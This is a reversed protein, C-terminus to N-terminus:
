KMLLLKRAQTFNETSLQYFYIGSALGEASWEYKYNGANLEESVLTTVKEGLASFVELTVLTQEPISFQITTSPNFPNPYNQHLVFQGPIGGLENLGQTGITDTFVWTQNTVVVGSSERPDVIGGAVVLHVIELARTNMYGVGSHFAMTRNPLPDEQEYLNISVHYSYVNDIPTFGTSTSGGGFYIEDDTFREGYHAYLSLPYNSRATWIIQARNTSNIEGNYTTNWLETTSKLGGTLYFERGIRVTGFSAAAEPLETADRFDEDNMNYMMVRKLFLDGRETVDEIGGLMYIISDEFSKASHFFVNIPLDPLQKWTNTNINYEYFSNVAPSPFPANFGGMTYIKDQILAAANVRLPEPLSAIYEWSDTNVNYRLCSSAAVGTGTTDGGIVYLWLTDNRSYMVSGGYYRAFPMNAGQMWSGSTLREKGTENLIKFGDKGFMEAATTPVDQANVSIILLFAAFAKLFLYNCIKM